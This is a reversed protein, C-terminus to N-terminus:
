GDTGFSADFPEVRIPSPRAPAPEIPAPAEAPWLPAPPTQPQEGSPPPLLVVQARGDGASSTGDGRVAAALSAAAVPGDVVMVGSDAGALPDVSGGGRRMRLVDLMMERRPGGARRWRRTRMLDLGELYAPIPRTARWFWVMLAILGFGMLLLIGIV